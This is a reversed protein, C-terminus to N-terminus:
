DRAPEVAARPPVPALYGAGLILLGIGLLSMVRLLGGVNALDVLLLKVGVVFLLALGGFWVPRAHRKSALVMAALAFATWALSVLAQFLASHWLDDPLYPVGDLHHVARALGNTLWFLLALPFLAPYGYGHGTSGLERWHRHLAWLLFLAALELPNFLPVFPLVWGGTLALHWSFLWLWALAVPLALGQILYLRRHAGLPWRDGRYAALLLPAALLAARAAEALSDGLAPTQAVLWHVEWAPVWAISWFQLVHRQALFWELGDREHRRLTAYLAYLAVPLVLWMDVGLPHGAHWQTLLLVGATAPLLLLTAARADPMGWRRGAWESGLFTVSALLLLSVHRKSDSLVYGLEWYWIGFWWCLTWALFGRAAPARDRLAYASFGGAAALLLSANFLSNRFPPADPGQLWLDFLMLGSLGQLLVGAVLPLRRDTRRAFWILGAGELAWFVSATNQSYALYPSLSVFTIGLGALARALLDDGARRAGHWLLGYWLGALLSSLALTDLDGYFLAAQAMAAATPPGFLLTSSRWGWGAREGSRTALVPALSFLTFLAVVFYETDARLEARYGQDAWGLGLLVTFAFGALTLLRWGRRLSAWLIFADLLVIYVFLILHNGEGGALPPALFAGSLGLLALAEGEQRLALAVCAVGLGAFALFATAPDIYAYYELAFFTALYLLGFGGGELAFGFGSRTAFSMETVRFLWAPRFAGGAAPSAGAWILALGAVAAAVLRLSPPFLGYDAALKLGSAVGFFLVVIGLKALLNGALLRGVWEDLSPPVRAEPRTRAVDPGPPPAAADDDLALAPAAVTDPMPHEVAVAAPATPPTVATPAEPRTREPEAIAERAKAAQRELAETRAKLDDVQKLLYGIAGGLVAGAFAGFTTGLLMGILAFLLWM